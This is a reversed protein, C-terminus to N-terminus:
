GQAATRLRTKAAAPRSPAMKSAARGGAATRGADPPPAITRRLVLSPRLVVQIPPAARGEILDILSRVAMEAMRQREQSVTSLGLAQHSAMEIDDFGVVSLDEPVRLNCHAAAELVGFAMLDNGAFIATPREKASLLGFAEQYAVQSRFMGSRVWEQRVPVGCDQLAALFGERRERATSFEDPGGLFAINRHGLHILHVTASYAGQRNDVVVYNGVSPGLYRNYMVVPFRSEILERVASDGLRVSGFIIGDVRRRLVVQLYERELKPDNDTNCLFVSYGRMQATTAIVRATEAYFPNTIDAVILGITRSRRSVLSRAVEDPHYGLAAIAKCVRERVQSSVRSSNNLVRSVTAQSVGAVRAVDRATVRRPLRGAAAEGGGGEVPEDGQPEPM